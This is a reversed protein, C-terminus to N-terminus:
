AIQLLLTDNLVRVACCLVGFDIGCKQEPSGPTYKCRQPDLHQLLRSVTTVTSNACQYVDQCKVM